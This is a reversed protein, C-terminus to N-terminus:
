CTHGLVSRTWLILLEEGAPKGAMDVAEHSATKEQGLGNLWQVMKRRKQTKWIKLKSMQSKVNSIVMVKTGPLFCLPPGPPELCPNCSCFPQGGAGPVCTQGCPCAALAPKALLFTVLLM